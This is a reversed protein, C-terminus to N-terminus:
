SLSIKQWGDLKNTESLNSTGGLWLGKLKQMDLLEEGKGLAQSLWLSYKGQNNEKKLLFLQLTNEKDLEQLYFDKVDEIRISTFEQADKKTFVFLTFLNAENEAIEKRKDETKEIKNQPNTERKKSVKTQLNLLYYADKSAYEQIKLFDAELNQVLTNRAEKTSFHAQYVQCAKSSKLVGYLDGCALPEEDSAHLLYVTDKQIYLYSKNKFNGFLLEDKKMTKLLSPRYFAERENQVNDEFAYFRLDVNGQKRRLLSPLQEEKRITDKFFIEADKNVNESSVANKLSFIALIQSEKIRDSMKLDSTSFIYLNKRLNDLYFSFPYLGSSEEQVYDKESSSFVHKNERQSNVFYITFQESPTNKALADISIDPHFPRWISYLIGPEGDGVWLTQVVEAQKRQIKTYVEAKHERSGWYLTSALEDEKLYTFSTGSSSLLFSDKQIGTAVEYTIESSFHYFYVNGKSGNETFYLERYYYVGDEVIGLVADIPNVLLISRKDKLQYFSQRQTDLIFSTEKHYPSIFLQSGSSFFLPNEKENFLPYFYALQGDDQILTFSSLKDQQRLDKEKKNSFLSDRYYVALSLLFLFVLFVFLLVKELSRKKILSSKFSTSIPKQM